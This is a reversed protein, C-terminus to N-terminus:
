WRCGQWGDSRWTSGRWTSGTWTSGTWTSGTWTSGTWGADRWTSGTWTSGTWTSGTWLQSRWTSGAFPSSTTSSKILWGTAAWTAGNWDGGTWATGATSAAAWTGPTWPNGMIDIEGTLPTGDPAVLHNSGRAADISGSGDSYPYIQTANGPVATLLAKGVNIMGAGQASAPSNPLQSASAMLVAKVQDPTLTPRASLVDAVAGSVVAAAQSTGSGRFYSTGTVATPFNTDIFSGPDRDSVISVGPALVDVGRGAGGVSSFDAVKDDSSTFINGLDAAGVTIVYPDIAPDALAGGNNGASVVVVIGNRWASEVAHTLPDIQYPQVSDTGFALNLVRVNLGPDNHHQTVWDLSAIVQSVDVSGDFAGVKMDLIRSQAAVGPNIPDRGAIIGALHTGHGYADVGSPAGFQSDLSLDPGAIVADATNLGPVPAVGTDVLAVDVGKGSSRGSSPENIVASVLALPEPNIGAPINWSNLAYQYLSQMKSGGDSGSSGSSSSGNSSSGSGWNSSGSSGSSAAAIGPLALMTAVAVAGGAALRVGRRWRWGEEVTRLEM